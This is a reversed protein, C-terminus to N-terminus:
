SPPGHGQAIADSPADIDVLPALVGIAGLSGAEAAHDFATMGNRSETGLSAGASILRELSHVADAQAAAQLASVGEQDTAELEAGADLLISVMEADNRIAARMLPTLGLVRPQDPDAGAQLLLRALHHDSAAVADALTGAAVDPRRRFLYWGAASIGVVLALAVVVGAARRSLRDPLM